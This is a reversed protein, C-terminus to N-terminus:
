SDTGETLGLAEKVAERFEDPLSEITRMKHTVLKIYLELM